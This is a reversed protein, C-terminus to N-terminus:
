EMEELSDYVQAEVEYIDVKLKDHSMEVMVLPQIATM